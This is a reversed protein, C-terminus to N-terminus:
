KLTRLGGLTSLLQERMEADIQRSFRDFEDWMEDMDRQAAQLAKQAAEWAGRAEVERARAAELKDATQRWAEKRDALRDHRARVLRELAELVKPDSEKM